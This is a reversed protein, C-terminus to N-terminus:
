SAVQLEFAFMRLSKSQWDMCVLLIDKSGANDEMCSIIGM